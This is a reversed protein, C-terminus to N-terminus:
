IPYICKSFTEYTCIHCKLAMNTKQMSLAIIHKEDCSASPALLSMKANGMNLHNNLPTVHSNTDTSNGTSANIIGNTDHSTSALPLYGFFDQQEENQDDQGLSDLLAVSSATPMMQHQHSYRHSCIVLFDQQVEIQTNQSSHLPVMSLVLPMMHHWCHHWHYLMVLCTM